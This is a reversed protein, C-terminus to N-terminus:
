PMKVHRFTTNGEVLAHHVVPFYLYYSYYRYYPYYSIVLRSYIIYSIATKEASQFCFVTKNM